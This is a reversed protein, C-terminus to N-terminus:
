APTTVAGARSSIRIHIANTSGPRSCADLQLDVVQHEDSSSVRMSGILIVSFGLIPTGTRGGLGDPTTACFLPGPIFRRTVGIQTPGSTVPSGWNLFEFSM